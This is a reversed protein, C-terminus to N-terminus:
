KRASKQKSKGITSCWIDENGIFTQIPILQYEKSTKIGLQSYECDGFTYIKNNQTKVFTHDGRSSIDIVNTFNPHLVPKIREEQDGLGLQGIINEGFSWLYDNIDICMSYNNGCEIRQMKPIGSILTPKNMMKLKENNLGLQNYENNGFSYIDGESTLILSHYSGCKVSMINDPWNFYKIFESSGYKCEKGLQGSDNSGCSYFENNYTKCIIHYSGCCIYEVNNINPILKPQNYENESDNGLGLCGYLAFGFSYLVNEETLCISFDYGSCVQICPPVKVKQPVCECKLEKYTKGIGLQGHENSGFTFVDGNYNLCICHGGGCDIMKINTLDNIRTPIYIQRKNHGHLGYRSNGLSYVNKDNGICITIFGFISKVCIISSKANNIMILNSMEVKKKNKKEDDNKDKNKKRKGLLSM